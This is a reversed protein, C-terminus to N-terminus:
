FQIRLVYLLHRVLILANRNNRSLILADQAGEAGGVLVHLAWAVLLRDALGVDFVGWRLRVHGRGFHFRVEAAGMELCLM